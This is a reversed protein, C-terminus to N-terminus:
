PSEITTPTFKELTDWGFRGVGYARGDVVVVDGVSLSRNEAARYRRVVPNHNEGVNFWRFARECVVMDTPDDANDRYEIALRVTDGPQYPMFLREDGDKLYVKVDRV